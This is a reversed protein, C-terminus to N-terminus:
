LIILVTPTKIFGEKDECRVASVDAQWWKMFIGVKNMQKVNNWHM